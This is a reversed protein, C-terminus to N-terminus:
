RKLFVFDGVKVELLNAVLECKAKLLYYIEKDVESLGELNGQGKSIIIDAKEYVTIFDKSAEEMIMGPAKSGSSIVKAYEDIGLMLAEKKSIDNLVPIDRVAYSINLNFDNLEKLLIRDFLAEGVNDAIILLNNAESLENSFQKYDSEEFGNKLANEINKEIDVNLTVGADISNGMAAMVLSAFVPDKAEKIERKVLPLYQEAEKLNENKLNQYPDDVATREKIYQQMKEVVLPAKTNDDIDPVMKAYHNLIERILVEDDTAMRAGELVQRCICPICDLSLKM